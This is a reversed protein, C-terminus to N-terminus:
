NRIRCILEPNQVSTERWIRSYPKPWRSTRGSLRYEKNMIKPETAPIRGAKGWTPRGKKLTKNRKSDWNSSPGSHIYNINIFLGLRNKKLLLIIQGYFRKFFHFDLNSARANPCSVSWLYLFMKTWTGSCQSPRAPGGPWCSRWTSRRSPPSSFDPVASKM